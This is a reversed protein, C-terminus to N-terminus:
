EGKEFLEFLAEDHTMSMKLAETLGSAVQRHPLTKLVDPDIVVATPPYFAGVCNKIGDLNVAVKGGISSDVQSLLTTPINYFDIGRMYASAAFGALDGVVGGGVAVVCDRRTFGKKLMLSLLKEFSRLSKTGEGTPLTILTPSLAAKAVAEAYESPVGEDTVVLVRRSLNLLEGVCSLAGRAITIPYSGKNTKVTLTSHM